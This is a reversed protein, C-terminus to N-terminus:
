PRTKVHPSANHPWSPKPVGSRLWALGHSTGSRGSRCAIAQPSNWVTTREASPDTYLQPRDVRPGGVERLIVGFGSSSVVNVSGIVENLQPPPEVSKIPSLPSTKHQGPAPRSIPTTGKAGPRLAERVAHAPTPASMKTSVLM